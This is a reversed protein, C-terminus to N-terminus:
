TNSPHAATATWRNSGYKGYGSCSNKYFDLNDFRVFLSYYLKLWVRAPTKAVRKNVGEEVYVKIVVQATFL